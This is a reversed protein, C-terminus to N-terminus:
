VEMQDAFWSDLFLVLLFRGPADADFSFALLRRGDDDRELRLTDGKINVGAHVSVARQREV